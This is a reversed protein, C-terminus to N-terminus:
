EISGGLRASGAAKQVTHGVLRNRPRIRGCFCRHPRHTALGCSVRPWVSCVSAVRRTLPWLPRATTALGRQTVESPGPAMPCPTPRAPQTLPKQHSSHPAPAGLASPAGGWLSECAWTRAYAWTQGRMHGQEGGGGGQL